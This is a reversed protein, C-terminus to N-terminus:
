LDNVYRQIGDRILTVNWNILFGVKYGTLRLYTLLQAQHVPLLAQVVKNEVVVMGEVLMDIRYAAEVVIGKYRVPFRIELDVEFGRSRLEHGLCEQYASELLGPGIERHVAISGDVIESAVREIGSGSRQREVKAGKAFGERRRPSATQLREDEVIGFRCGGRKPRLM